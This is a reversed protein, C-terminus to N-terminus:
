REIRAAAPLQRRLVDVASSSLSTNGIGLRELSVLGSLDPLQEIETNSLDLRELSALTGISPPLQRLPNDNLLLTKLSRLEAFCDPLVTLANQNLYLTELRALEGLWSPLETVQNFSLMLTTLNTFARVRNPLQRWTLSGSTSLRVVREDPIVLEDLTKPRVVHVSGTVRDAEDIQASLFDTFRDYALEFVLEDRYNTWVPPDDGADLPFSAYAYGQHESFLFHGEPMEEPADSRLTLVRDKEVVNLQWRFCHDHMLCGARRGAWRVYSRYAAPFTVGLAREVKAVEEESFGRLTGARALRLQEFRARHAAIPDSM